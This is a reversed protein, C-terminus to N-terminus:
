PRARWQRLYSALAEGVARAVAEQAEQRGAGPVPVFGEVWLECNDPQRHCLAWFAGPDPQNRAPRPEAYGTTSLGLDAGFLACAGRAMARSVAASVGEVAAAERTDVGLHRAKQALSYATIGGLFYASAGSEATVLSQLRGGTMSEAVALTLLPPGVLLQKLM